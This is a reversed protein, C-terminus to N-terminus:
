IKQWVDTATYVLEFNDNSSIFHANITNDDIKELVIIGEMNPMLIAIYNSNYPSFYDCDPNLVDMGTVNYHISGTSDITITVNQGYEESLYDSSWTTNEMGVTFDDYNPKEPILIYEEGNDNLLLCKSDKIDTIEIHGSFELSNLYYCYDFAITDPDVYTYNYTGGEVTGYDDSYSILEASNDAGFIVDHGFVMEGDGRYAECTWYGDLKEEFELNSDNQEVLLNEDICFLIENSFIAEDYYVVIYANYEDIACGIIETDCGHGNMEICSANFEKYEDTKEFRTKLEDETTGLNDLYESMTLERDNELDYYYCDYTAYYESFQLGSIDEVIISLIGNQVTYYYDITILSSEEEYNLLMNYTDEYSEFIKENFAIVNETNGNIKPLIIIHKTDAYDDYEPAVPIVEREYNLADIVPNDMDIYTDETPPM